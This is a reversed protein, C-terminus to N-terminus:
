RSFRCQLVRTWIQQYILGVVLFGIGVFLLTPREASLLFIFVTSFAISLISVVLIGKRGLKFSASEYADSMTGPMRILAIGTMIQIAMVGVLALQAYSTIAGGIITGVLALTGVLIVANVPANTTAHVSALMGPYLGSKAGQYLDRSLGLMVGNVSTAAALLASVAIFTVVPKPLFVESATVVAMKTEALDGWPILMNLALPVLTYLLIIVVFGIGIALPINRRPNKIEGAIEAIVFVGAYSFFATVAALALPSVGKPFLPQLLEADGAVVGGIGFILLALLFIVVMVDQVKAAVGVGLSNVVVFLVILSSAIVKQNMGPVFHGLYNAFGMAILPIVVAAMSLMIWTYLFGAYPSLADRILVFNAGSVPLASGIQAMIVGAIIAPIAALMYAIFVAPGTEAALSGPLIFITAGVVYGIIIFVASPLSITRKLENNTM